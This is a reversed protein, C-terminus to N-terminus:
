GVARRVAPAAPPFRELILEAARLATQASGYVGMVKAASTREGVLYLGEVGEARIDVLNQGVNGPTEILTAPGFSRLKWLASKLLGPFLVEIDAEWDEFLRQLAAKHSARRLEFLNPKDWWGLQIWFSVEYQAKDPCYRLSSACWPRGSVPGRQVWRQGSHDWLEARDLAVTLTAVNLTQRHLHELRQAYWVPLDDESVINFIDWIAVASVVVPAAIFRTEPLQTPVVREGEEVLVGRVAGQEIVVRSVAAGTRIVGGREEIAEILGAAIAGSGGEVWYSQNPMCGNAEVQQKISYFLSGASYDSGDPLTGGFLWGLYRFFDIINPDDTREAVFRDIPVDNLAEIEEYSMDLATQKYVALFTDMSERIMADLSRWGDGTHIEGSNTWECVNAPMPKGIRRHIADQAGMMILGKIGNDVAAGDIRGSAARGGLAQRGGRELVLVQKGAHCLLAALNLGGMGGGVIIVEFNSDTM